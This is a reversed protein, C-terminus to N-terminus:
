LRLADILERLEDRLDGRSNVTQRVEEELLHRYRKRLRYVAQEVAGVSLGLVAGVEAYSKGDGNWELHDKIADFLKQQDRQRYEERLRELVSELVTLAWRRDYIQEATLDDRLKAAYGQEAGEPDIPVHLVDGGRKMTQRHAKEDSMHNKMAAILFSRFRGRDGSVRELSRYSILSSFLGQTLDAADEPSRGSHRVFAYLPQWYAQCLQELSRHVASETGDRADIILSWRTDPFQRDTTTGM